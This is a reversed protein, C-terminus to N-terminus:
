TWYIVNLICIYIQQILTDRCRESSVRSKNQFSVNMEMNYKLDLLEASFFRLPSVIIIIFKSHLHSHSFVYKVAQDMICNSNEVLNVQFFGRILLKKWFARISSNEESKKKPLFHMIWVNKNHVQVWYWCPRLYNADELKCQFSALPFPFINPFFISRTTKQKPFAKPTLTRPSIDCLRFPTFKIRLQPTKKSLM